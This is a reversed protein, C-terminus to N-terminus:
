ILRPFRSWGLTGTVQTFGNFATYFDAPRMECTVGGGVSEKQRRLLLGTDGSWGM